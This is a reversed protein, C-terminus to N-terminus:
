NYKSIGIFNFVHNPKITNYKFGMKELLFRNYYNVYKGKVVSTLRNYFFDKFINYMEFCGDPTEKIISKDMLADLAEHSVDNNVFIVNIPVPTKFASLIEIIKIEIKNLNSYIEEFIYKKIEKKSDIINLFLPHGCTINFIKLFKQDPINKRKLIKVSSQYDLGEIGFEVVLKEILVKKRNYIPIHFRTILIFKFMDDSKSIEILSSFFGRIEQNSKEFDDIVFLIPYNKIKFKLEKIAKFLNLEEDKKLEQNINDNHIKSMFDNLSEILNQVTDSEKINYWFIHKKNRYEEVLKFILSTKGIGAMGHIVLYNYFKDCKLFHALQKLEEKRGFFLDLNPSRRFYNVFNQENQKILNIDLSGKKNAYKCVKLVTINECIKQQILYSVVNPLKLRKEKQNSNLITIDQNNVKEKIDNAIKIGKETLFYIIQKRKKGIVRSSIKDIIDKEILNKLYYPIHCKDTSVSDSIGQQTLCDPIEVLNLNCNNNLLHYLIRDQINM